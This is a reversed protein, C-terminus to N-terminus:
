RAMNAASPVNISRMSSTASSNLSWGMTASITPKMRAPPLREIQVGRSADLTQAFAMDVDPGRRMPIRAPPPPKGSSIACQAWARPWGTWMTAKSPSASAANSGKGTVRTLHPCTPAMTDANLAAPECSRTITPLTLRGSGSLTRGSKPKKKAIACMRFIRADPPSSPTSRATKCNKSFLPKRTMPAPAAAGSSTIPCPASPLMEGSALACSKIASPKSVTRSSPGWSTPWATTMVLPRISANSAASPVSAM